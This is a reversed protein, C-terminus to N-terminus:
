TQAPANGDSPPALGNWFMPGIKRVVGDVDVHGEIVLSRLGIVLIAGFLAAAGLDDDPLARLSGDAAGEALLRRVPEEFGQSVRAAIDPLKGARGLNAILLQSAAPHNDLHELQARIVAALRVAPDGAGSAAAATSATLEDLVSRRLYALVDDKNTFYYYLSSRAVGAAAAIDTMQLDDFGSLLANAAAALNSAMDAPVERM